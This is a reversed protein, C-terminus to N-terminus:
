EESQQFIEKARQYFENYIRKLNRDRWKDKRYLNEEEIKVGYLISRFMAITQSADIKDTNMEDSYAEEPPIVEGRWNTWRGPRDVGFLPIFIGSLDHMTGDVDVNQPLPGNFNNRLYNTIHGGTGHIAGLTRLFRYSFTGDMRAVARKNLKYVKRLYRYVDKESTLQHSSSSPLKIEEGFQAYIYALYENIEEIRPDTSFITRFARLVRLDTKSFKTFTVLKVYKRLIIKAQNILESNQPSVLLEAYNHKWLLDIYSSIIEKEKFNALVKASYALDLLESQALYEGNTFYDEIPLIIKDGDKRITVERILDIRQPIFVAANEGDIERLITHIALVRAFERYAQKLLFGGIVNSDRLERGEMWIETTQRDTLDVGGTHFYFPRQLNLEETIRILDPPLEMRNFRIDYPSYLGSGKEMRVISKVIEGSDRYVFAVSLSRCHGLLQRALINWGEQFHGIESYDEFTTIIREDGGGPSLLTKNTPIYDLVFKFGDDELGDLLEEYTQILRQSFGEFNLTTTGVLDFVKEVAEVHLGVERVVRADVPLIFLVVVLCVLRITTLNFYKMM